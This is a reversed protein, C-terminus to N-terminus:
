GGHLAPLVLAGMNLARQMRATTATDPDTNRIKGATDTNAAPTSGAAMNGGENTYGTVHNAISAGAGGADKEALRGGDLGAGAETASVANTAEDEGNLVQYDSNTTAADTVGGAVTDVDRALGTNNTNAVAPRIIPTGGWSATQDAGGTETSVLAETFHGTLHNFSIPQANDVTLGGVNKSTLDATVEPTVGEASAARCDNVGKAGFMTHKLNNMNAATGADNPNLVTLVGCNDINDTGHMDKALFTPFLINATEGQNREAEVNVLTDADGGPPAADIGISAGVATIAIVFHGSNTGAKKDTSMAPLDSLIESVNTGDMDDDSATGPIMHDFPDVLLNSDAQLVRLYWLVLKMEDNYYQTLVTVAQSSHANAVSIFNKHAMNSQFILQSGKDAALGEDVVATAMLIPVVGLVLIKFISKMKFSRPQNTSVSFVKRDDAERREM